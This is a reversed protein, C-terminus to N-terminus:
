QQLHIHKGDFLANVVEMMDNIPGEGEIYWKANESLAQVQLVKAFQEKELESLLAVV